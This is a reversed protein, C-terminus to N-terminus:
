NQRAEHQRRTVQRVERGGAHRLDSKESAGVNPFRADDIRQDARLQGAGAVRGSARSANVKIFDASRPLRPGLQSESVKWTVTIGLNGAFDRSVPRPKHVWIKVLARAQRQTQRQHIRVNRGLFAIALQHFEQRGSFPWMRNHGGLTVAKRAVLQALRHAREPLCIASNGDYRERCLPATSGSERRTTATAIEPPRFTELLRGICFSFCITPPARPGAYRDRVVRSSALSWCRRRSRPSDEGALPIRAPLRARLHLQVSRRCLGRRRQEPLESNRVSDMSTRM